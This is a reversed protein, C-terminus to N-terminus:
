AGRLLVLIERSSFLALWSVRDGHFGTRSVAVSESDGEMCRVLPSPQSSRREDAERVASPVGAGHADRETRAHRDAEGRRKDESGRDAACGCDGFGGGPGRRGTPPASTGETVTTNM